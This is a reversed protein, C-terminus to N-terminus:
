ADEKKILSKKIKLAVTKTLLLIGKTIAKCGYFAFVSLGTCVLGAGLMAIGTLDNGTIFIVIGAIIFGIACGILSGYVAWLSIIVAWLSVYLSFIVSIAAIALSLWIPSGLVLLIIEWTKLKKAPKIKEKVIKTLPIDAVIQSAIEDVSGIASVAEEESLGEEMRDEIMESYFSLREEVENQPLDSLKDHLSLLFKLKTM